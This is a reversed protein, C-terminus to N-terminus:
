LLSQNEKSWLDLLKKAGKYYDENFEIGLFECLKQTNEKEGIKASIIDNFHIKLHSIKPEYSFYSKYVTRSLGYHKNNKKKSFLRDILQSQSFDFTITIIKTNTTDILELFYDLNLHHLDIVYYFNDYNLKYFEIEINKIGNFYVKSLSYNTNKNILEINHYCYYECFGDASQLKQNFISDPIPNGLFHIYSALMKGCSGPLYRVIIIKQNMKISFLM